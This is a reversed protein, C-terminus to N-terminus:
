CFRVMGAGEDQVELRWFQSCYIETTELGGLRHYNTITDQISQSLVSKTDVKRQGVNFLNIWITTHLQQENIKTATHFVKTYFNWLKDIFKVKIAMKEPRKSNHIIDQITRQMDGSAGTSVDELACIQIQSYNAPELPNM